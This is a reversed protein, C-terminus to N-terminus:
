PSIRKGEVFSYPVEIDMAMAYFDHGQNYFVGNITVTVSV